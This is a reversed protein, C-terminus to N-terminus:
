VPRVKTAGLSARSQALQMFFTSLMVALVIRSNNWLAYTRLIFFCEPFMASVASLGMDINNLVRCEDPNENLTFSMYLNAILFVFPLYRAVIYMGKVKGWHSRPTDCFLRIVEEYLSCAYDYTWFTATSVSSHTAIQLSRAAAIDDSSYEM